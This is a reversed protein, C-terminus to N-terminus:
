VLSSSVMHPLMEIEIFYLLILTGSLYVSHCAVVRPVTTNVRGPLIVYHTQTAAM